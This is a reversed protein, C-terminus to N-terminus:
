PTSIVHAVAASIANTFLRYPLKNITTAPVVGRLNPPLPGPDNPDLPDATMEVVALHQSLWNSGYNPDAGFVTALHTVLLQPDIPPTPIPYQRLTTTNGGINRDTNLVIDATLAAATTEARQDDVAIVAGQADTKPVLAQRLEAPLVPSTGGQAYRLALFDHLATIALSAEDVTGFSFVQDYGLDNVLINGAL